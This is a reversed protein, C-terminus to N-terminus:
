KSNENQPNSLGTVTPSTSTTSLSTNTSLNNSSDLNLFNITTQPKMGLKTAAAALNDPSSLSDVQDLVADRQDNVSALSLKANELTFAGSTLAINICLLLLLGVTFIGILIGVFANNSVAQDNEVSLDPVLRLAVRTQRAIGSIRNPKVSQPTFEEFQAIAM